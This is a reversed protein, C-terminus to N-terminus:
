DRIGINNTWLLLFVIVALQWGYAVALWIFAAISVIQSIILAFLRAISEPTVDQILRDMEGGRQGYWLKNQVHRTTM